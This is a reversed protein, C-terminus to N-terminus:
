TLQTLRYTISNRGEFTEYGGFNGVIAQEGDQAVVREVRVVQM